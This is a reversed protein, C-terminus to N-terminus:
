QSVLERLEKISHGDFGGSKYRFNCRVSKSYNNFHTISEITGERWDKSDSFISPPCFAAKGIYSQYKYLEADVEIKLNEVIDQVDSNSYKQNLKNLEYALQAKKDFELIQEQTHLLKM